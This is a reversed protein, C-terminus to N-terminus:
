AAGVLRDYERQAAAILIQDRTRPLYPRGEAAAERALRFEREAGTAAKPEPNEHRM